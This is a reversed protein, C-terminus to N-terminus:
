DVLTFKCSGKHGRRMACMDGTPLHIQACRGRRAAGEDVAANHAASPNNTLLDAPDHKPHTDVFPVV